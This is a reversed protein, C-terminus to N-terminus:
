PSVFRWSVQIVPVISESGRYPNVLWTDSFCVLLALPLLVRIFCLYDHGIRNQTMREIGLPDM